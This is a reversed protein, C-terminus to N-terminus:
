KVIFKKGNQIYVGKHLTNIDQVKTNVLQGNINYIRADKVSSETKVNAIGSTITDEFDVVFTNVSKAPIMIRNGLAYTGVINKLKETASTRYM